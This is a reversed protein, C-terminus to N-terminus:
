ENLRLKYPKFGIPNQNRCLNGSGSHTKKNLM